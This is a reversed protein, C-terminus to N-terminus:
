CSYYKKKHLYVIGKTIDAMKVNNIQKHISYGVEFVSKKLVSIIENVLIGRVTGTLDVM